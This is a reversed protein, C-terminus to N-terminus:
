MIEVRSRELRLWDFLDHSLLFASLKYFFTYRLFGGYWGKERSQDLPAGLQTMHLGRLLCSRPGLVFLTFGTCDYQGAIDAGREVTINRPGTAVGYGNIVM